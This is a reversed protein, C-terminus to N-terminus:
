VRMRRHLVFLHQQMNISIGGFVMPFVHLTLCIDEDGHYNMCAFLMLINCYQLLSTCGAGALARKAPSFTASLDSLVFLMKKM